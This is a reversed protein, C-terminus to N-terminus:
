SLTPYHTMEGTVQLSINRATASGIEYTAGVSAVLATFVDGESPTDSALSGIFGKVEAGKYFASMVAKQAADTEDAFVTVDITGGKYGAIYKKWDIEKDSVEIMDASLNLSSTSEGTLWTYKGETLTLYLKDINGLRAM